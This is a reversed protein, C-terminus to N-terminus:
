HIFLIRVLPEMGEKPPANMVDTSFLLAGFAMESM